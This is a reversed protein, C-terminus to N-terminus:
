TPSSSSASCPATWRRTPSSRSESRPSRTTSVWRTAPSTGTASPSSRRCTSTTTRSAFRRISRPRSSPCAARRPVRDSAPRARPPPPAAVACWGSDGADLMAFRATKGDPGVMKRLGDRIFKATAMQNAVKSAFGDRGLRLLKYLQVYPGTAPRSFNLTYSEGKGGLYSVNVAVHESLDKRDRWVVWGTGVVSEGFKHGSGSVSLVEPVRFDWPAVESQFPAVFAGSAGDVHIGVQYGKTGNLARLAAGIAGVDDYQGGYHNGMICVVGCTREDVAAAVDAAAVTFTGVSPSVFVPEIDMYRFLKEWAAQFCTSIVMSPIERRAEVASLGHRAAYWARWRFKLALGALLCAETSGVTGAGPYCGYEDFSAPKPCHWLEAVMNLCDNHLKFSGPYITQDAINIAMGRGAVEVEEPEFVVNVYSSTNLQPKFDLLNYEEIVRRRLPARKSPWRPVTVARAARANLDGRM